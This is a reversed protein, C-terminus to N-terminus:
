FRSCLSQKRIEAETMTEYTGQETFACPRSLALCMHVTDILRFFPPINRVPTVRLGSCSGLTDQFPESVDLNSDDAVRSHQCQITFGKIWTKLYRSERRAM